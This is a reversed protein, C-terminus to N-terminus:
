SNHPEGTPRLEDATKYPVSLKMVMNVFAYGRSTPRLKTKLTNHANAYDRFAGIVKM